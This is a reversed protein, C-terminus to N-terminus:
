ANPPEPEHGEEWYERGDYSHHVVSTDDVSWEVVQPRCLCQRTMEHAVLDDVPVVHTDM